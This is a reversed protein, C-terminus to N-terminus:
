YFCTGATQVRVIEMPMQVDANSGAEDLAMNKTLRDNLENPMWEPKKWTELDTNSLNTTARPEVQFLSKEVRMSQSSSPRMEIQEFSPAIRNNKKPLPSKVRASQVPVSVPECAAPIEAPDEISEHVSEELGPAFALPQPQAEQLTNADGPPPSSEVVVMKEQEVDM